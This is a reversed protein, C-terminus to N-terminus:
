APLSYLLIITTYIICTRLTKDTNIHCNYTCGRMEFAAALAVEVGAPAVGVVMAVAQVVVLVAELEEVMAVAPAVAPVVELVPVEVMAVALVAVLEEEMAGVSVVM